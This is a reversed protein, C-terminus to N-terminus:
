KIVKQMEQQVRFKELFKSALAIKIGDSLQMNQDQTVKNKPYVIRTSLSSKARYIESKLNEVM